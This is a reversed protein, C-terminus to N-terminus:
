SAITDSVAAALGPGSVVLAIIHRRVIKPVAIRRTGLFRQLEAAARAEISRRTEVAAEAVQLADSIM